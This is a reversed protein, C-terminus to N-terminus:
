LKWGILNKPFSLVDTGLFIFIQVNIGQILLELWWTGVMMYGVRAAGSNNPQFYSISIKSYHLPSTCTACLGQSKVEEEKSLLLLFLTTDTIFAHNSSKATTPRARAALVLKLPLGAEETSSIAEM